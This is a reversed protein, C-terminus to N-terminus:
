HTAQNLQSHQKNQSSAVNKDVAISPMEINKSKTGDTEKNEMKPAAQKPKSSILEANENQKKKIMEIEEKTFTSTKCSLPASM